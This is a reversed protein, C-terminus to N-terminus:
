NVCVKPSLMLYPVSPVLRCPMIRGPTRTPRRPIWDSEEVALLRGPLYLYAAKVVLRANFLGVGAGLPLVAKRALRVVLSFNFVPIELGDWQALRRIDLEKRM